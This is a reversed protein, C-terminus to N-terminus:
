GAVRFTLYGVYIAIFAAGMARGMSAKGFLFIPVIIAAFFLSMMIDAVGREPIPLPRLIASIPLVVLSNFINSGVVNGVCLDAEKRLAAIISTVMEPLSTGIAVIILGVV